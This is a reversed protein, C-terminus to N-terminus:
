RQPRKNLGLLCPSLEKQLQEQTVEVDTGDCFLTFKVPETIFMLGSFVGGLIFSTIMFFTFRRAAMKMAITM